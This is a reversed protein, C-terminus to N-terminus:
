PTVPKQLRYTLTVSDQGQGLIDDWLVHVTFTGGPTPNSPDAAYQVYVYYPLDGSRCAAPYSTTDLATEDSIMAVSSGNMCYPNNGAVYISDNGDQSRLLEAQSQALRTAESNEQAQRANLLSRNATAYSISIALGLVALVIMVEVITDGRQRLHRRM